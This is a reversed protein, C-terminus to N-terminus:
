LLGAGHREDDVTGGTARDLYIVASKALMRVGILTLLATLILM